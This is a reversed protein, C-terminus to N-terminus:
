SDTSYIKPKKSFLLHKFQNNVDTDSYKKPTVALLDETSNFDAKKSSDQKVFSKVITELHDIVESEEQRADTDDSTEELHINIITIFFNMAIVSIFLLFLMLLLAGPLGFASRISYFDYSNLSAQALTVITQTFWAYEKLLSGFFITMAFAFALLIVGGMLAMSVLQSSARRITLTFLCIAENYRLIYLLELHAIFIAFGLFVLFYYSSTLVSDFGVVSEPFFNFILIVNSARLM